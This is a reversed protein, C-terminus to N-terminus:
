GGSKLYKLIRDDFSILIDDLFTNISKPEIGIIQGHLKTSLRPTTNENLKYLNEFHFARNRITRILSFTISVKEFNLWKHKKNFNSYKLFDIDKLNIVKNQIRSADLLEVWYGLTQRSIFTDDAINLIQAVKNRTTIEIIGLKPAIDGILLLNQRHEDCSLYGALRAKSFFASLDSQNM